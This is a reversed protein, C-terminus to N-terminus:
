AAKIQSTAAITEGLKTPARYLGFRDLLVLWLFELQRAYRRWYRRPETAM